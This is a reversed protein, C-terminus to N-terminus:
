ETKSWGWVVTYVFQRRRKREVPQPLALLQSCRYDTMPWAPEGPWSIRQQPIWWCMSGFAASLPTILRVLCSAMDAVAILVRKFVRSCASLCTRYCAHPSIRKIKCKTYLFHIFIYVPLFRWPCMSTIAVHIFSFINIYLLLQHMGKM